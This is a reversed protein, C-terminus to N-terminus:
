RLHSRQEFAKRAQLNLQSAPIWQGETSSYGSWMVFYEKKRNRIRMERVERVEYAKMGKYTMEDSTSDDVLLRIPRMQPASHKHDLGDDDNM